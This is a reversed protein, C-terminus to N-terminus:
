LQHAVYADYRGPTKADQNVARDRKIQRDLSSIFGQLAKAAESCQSTLEEQESVHVSGLRGSLHIYYEVEYLSGRAQHLFRRSDVVTERGCGEAINAAVSVGARRMQSVIGLREDAPLRGTVEYIGVALDDAKQWAILKRLDRM